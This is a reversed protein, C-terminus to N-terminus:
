LRFYITQVSRWSVPEGDVLRKAFKWRRIAQLATRDFIHPPDAEVVVPDVVSGDRGVTFEIRVMGEIGRALAGPPYLPPIRVLPIAERLGPEGIYPTGAVTLPLDLQALNPTIANPRVPEPRPTALDPTVLPKEPPPEPPPLERNPPPPPPERKLRVFDIAISDAPVPLQFRQPTAMRQIVLFLVLNVLLAGAVIPLLRLVSM